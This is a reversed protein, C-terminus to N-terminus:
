YLIPFCSAPPLIPKKQSVTSLYCSGNMKEINPWKLRILDGFRLAVTCGTIFLDKAKKLHTPLSHEFNKDRILFQLQELQLTIVPIDEKVVYFDKNFRGIAILQDRELWNFFTRICKIISGVYNDFCGLDYPYKTFNFYFQKWYKREKIMEKQSLKEQNRIIVQKHNTEFKRLLRLAAHYNDISAPKILKGNRQLRYGSTTDNIFEEFLPILLYERTRM